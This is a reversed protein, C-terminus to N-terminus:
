QPLSKQMIIPKEKVAVQLDIGTRSKGAEDLQVDISGSSVIKLDRRVREADIWVRYDGPPLNYFGYAGGEDTM